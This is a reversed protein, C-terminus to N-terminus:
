TLQRLGRPWGEPLSSKVMDQRAAYIIIWCGEYIGKERNVFYFNHEINLEYGGVPMSKRVM